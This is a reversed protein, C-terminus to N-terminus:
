VDERWTLTEFDYAGLRVIVEIRKRAGTSSFYGESLIRFTESRTSVRPALGKLIERTMGPVNLLYAANAFSGSSSRYDVIARALTETVGPLCALVRWDATNVNVAGELELKEATTVEDAIQQLLQESVLRQGSVGGRPGPAATAAGVAEVLEAGGRSAGEAVGPQPPPENPRQPATVELLDVVSELRGRGRQAVIARALESSIGDVAALEAETAKQLSVRTKGRANVDRVASHVTVWESWGLVLDLRVGEVLLLELLSEIPGNRPLYPPSRSLYSEREAGEPTLTHDDDIWDAIAAAVPETLGPVKKLDEASATNLNFRSEEDTIGYVIGGPGEGDRGARLIRFVGRGLPVDRLEEPADRLRTVWTAGSTRAAQAEQHLLAKVREIGALAAYHAEISDSHNKTVRLDLKSSKLMVTVLLSLLVLCWLVGILIAGRMPTTHRLPTTM